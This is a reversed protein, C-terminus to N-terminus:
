VGESIRDGQATREGDEECEIRRARTSGSKISIRKDQTKEEPRDNLHHDERATKTRKVRRKKVDGRTTDMFTKGEM